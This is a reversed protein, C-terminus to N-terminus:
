VLEQIVTEIEGLIILEQIIREVTTTIAYGKLDHIDVLNNM